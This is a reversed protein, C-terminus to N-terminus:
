NSGLNFQTYTIKCAQRKYKRRNAKKIERDDARNPPDKTLNGFGDPMINQIRM